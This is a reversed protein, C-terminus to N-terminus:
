QPPTWLIPQKTKFDYDTYRLVRALRAQLLADDATLGKAEFAEIVWGWRNLNEKRDAHLIKMARKRGIGPCGKFGDATDGVLTLFLHNFDAEAQDITRVEKDKRYNFHLGPVTKFDKDISIIIREETANPDTALIGLVDDAELGPKFKSPFEARLMREVEYRHVPPRGQTRHAKYQPFLKYRFSAQHEEDGFILLYDDAKLKTMMQDIWVRAENRAQDIDGVASVEGPTWEVACESRCAFRYVIIDADFLIKRQM